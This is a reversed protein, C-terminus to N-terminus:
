EQYMKTCMRVYALGQSYTTAAYGSVDKIGETLMQVLNTNEKLMESPRKGAKSRKANEAKVDKVRSYAFAGLVIAIPFFLMGTVAISIIEGKTFSEDKLKGVVKAGSDIQKELDKLVTFKSRTDFELTELLKELSSTVKKLEEKTPVKFEAKPFSDSFDTQGEHDTELWFNNNKSSNIWMNGPLQKGFIDANNLKVTHSKAVEEAANIVAEVEEEKVSVPNMKTLEKLKDSCADVAANVTPVWKTNISNMVETFQDIGKIIGKVSWDGDYVLHSVAESLQVNLESGKAENGTSVTKVETSGIADVEKEVEKLEKKLGPISKKIKDLTTNFLGFIKKSAASVAGKVKGIIDKIGENALQSDLSNELGELGVMLSVSVDGLVRMSNETAVNVLIAQELSLQGVGELQHSVCELGTIVEELREIDRWVKQGELGLVELELKLSNM